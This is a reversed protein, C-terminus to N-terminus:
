QGLERILVSQHRRFVPENYVALLVCTIWTYGSKLKLFALHFPGGELTRMFEPTQMSIWRALLAHAFLGPMVVDDVPDYCRTLSCRTAPNSSPNVSPPLKIRRKELKYLIKPVCGMDHIIRSLHVRRSRLSGKELFTMRRDQRSRYAM